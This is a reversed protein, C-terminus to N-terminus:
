KENKMKKQSGVEYAERLFRILNRDLGKEETLRFRYVFDRDTIREVRDFCPHEVKNKLWLGGEIWRKRVVAGAFRARVQFVIRTKQAYVTM